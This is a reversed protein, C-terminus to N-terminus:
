SECGATQFDLIHISQVQDRYFDLEKLIQAPNTLLQGASSSFLEIYYEIGLYLNEQFGQYYKVQSKSAQEILEEVKVKLYDVYMKLEQIFMNPRDTRRVINTRGYIHDVMTQLSVQKEFYAMNPGPCISVGKIGAPMQIDNDILTSNGLSLCLCVKDTIIDLEKKHNATDLKKEDLEAIKLKQYQTSATCIPRETFETNFTLLRKGCPAGSKGNNTRKQKEIEGTTGRVTNFPIGLPSIASLYFGTEDSRAILELSDTDINVAEPVLLFPSGWGVSNIEFHDLLFKHEEYTGVGGQATIGITPPVTPVEKELQNLAKAYLEFLEDILKWKNVKFENLIPGLLYGETAFAHGGCNLGSEIRFESVWLGKKVLMKGQVLASRYDSVKLIIKKHLQGAKDPFFCDFNAMYSYLRPNLGASLVLSSDFNCNTFGRLASHADNYEVALPENNKSYTTSDVKTMINVHIEGPTMKNKLTEQMAIGSVPELQLMHLYEAKLASNEPLMEFYKTLESGPEFSGKKLRNFNGDVLKKMLNLYSSIRKARCDHEENPIPIFPLENLKCHYERMQEIIQHDIISVVSDIGFHAVKIPSDITYGTGMVPIHFSHPAIRNNM